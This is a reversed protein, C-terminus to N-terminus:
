LFGDQALQYSSFLFGLFARRVPQLNYRKLRVIVFDLLILYIHLAIRNVEM